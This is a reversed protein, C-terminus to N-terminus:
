KYHSLARKFREALPRVQEQAVPGIKRWDREIREIEEQVTKKENRRGALMFNDEMAQKLEEALSLAKGRGKGGSASTTELLNELRLCLSEKKKQNDLQQNKLDTFYQRRGAFFADGLTKFREQLEGDGERPAPGIGSWEQQLKRMQAATKQDTGQGALKEARALLEEKRSQNLLRQEEEQAFRRQRAAFFTDCPARFRRWLTKSRERPVPGIEQWQQQLATFQSAVEKQTGAAANEALLKEAQECLAEQRRLNQAMTEALWKFYTDCAGRFRDWIEKERDKPAPGVKQWRSQLHHFRGAYEPQPAATLSEAEECIKEKDRLHHQREEEKSQRNEARRAFFRDCAARFQQYLVREDRRSDHLLTQWEEQLAKLTAATKQWEDSEALTAALACIEQRRALAAARRIKLEALYPTARAFNRRCASQFIERLERSRKAPVPGIKRWEAQSEKIEKVVIELDNQRDLTAVKEVLKEQLSLNAWLQWDEEHHLAQLKATLTAEATRFREELDQGAAEALPPLRLWTQRLIQLQRAAGDLNEPEALSTLESCIEQRRTLNRSRAEAEARALDAALEAALQHSAAGSIYKFKSSTLEKDTTALQAAAKQLNGAALLERTEALKGELKALLAKERGIKAQQDAFARHATAFRSTLAASPPPKGAPGDVLANWAAVAQAVTAGADEAPSGILREISSCIEDLRTLQQAYEAVKEQETRRLQQIEAFKRAFDRSVAIFTQYAPHKGDHDRQRWEQTIAALRTAAEDVASSALLQAAEAALGSLIQAQVQEQDPQRRQNELDALKGLALRRATKGAASVALRALLPESFIKAMAARAPEKGCNHEVIEALLLQDAIADVAALRLAPQAANVAVKALLEPSDIRSLYARGAEGDPANIALDYLLQDKRAAVFPQIESDAVAALRELAPLDALRAIAARRVEPDRDERSLGILIETEGPDVTSIAALRVAPNKHRWKPQNFNLLGM